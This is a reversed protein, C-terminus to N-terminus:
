ANIEKLVLNSSSREESLRHLLAGVVVPNKMEDSFKRFEGAVAAFENQEDPM